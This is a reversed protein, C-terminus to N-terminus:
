KEECPLPIPKESSKIAKIGKILHGNALEAMAYATNMGVRGGGSQILSRPSNSPILDLMFRASKYRASKEPGEPMKQIKKLSGGLAGMLGKKMLRGLFSQGCESLPTEITFPTVSPEKPIARGLTEVFVEDSVSLTRISRYAQTVVLSNPVEIEPQGTVSITGQLRIDRSSAGVLIPYSGNELVWGQCKDNWYTLQSKSFNLTVAKSEGAALRVKQFAKLEKAAKFTKSSGNRGVYLQVTEAGDCIGDNRVSLTVTVTDGNESIALDSYAFSTYSLGYGFPYRIKEPVEDFFRYGVYINERYQEIMKSGFRDGFPIDNESRMWTESLKGSPCAEGFLLRRAAEGGGQGPLFIHLVASADEAFEMDIASGGALILVIKKGTAILKKVLSIQNEPIKFSKRDYGESESLDTLGCYVLVTDYQEAATLVEQELAPDPESEIERYGRVYRYKVGAKDFADKHTTLYKPSLGSSGAGQYRMETFLNGVALYEGTKELPLTGDNELLVACETAIQIATEAHKQLLEEIQPKEGKSQHRDILRLVNSVAKDLTELPLSGDAVADLIAKRNEWIGGPMDLDLGAKVGAVRDRTAGWDTMVLGDFGWDERLVDTLLWKNESCHTGNVKNYACMVTHPKGEKVAIEFAKLYVERAAREDVVSDSMYRYHESNNLAFHKVCASTGAEQVGQVYAASAKGALVPDESFYEFNRGGRPDRKINMGPALLVDVGYARCEEGIAKGVTKAAEPNWSNALNVPLPFATSPKSNGLGLAGEGEADAKCRVGAPGDTLYIAPIGLRPIANTMWSQYGEVLAAKEQVTLEKIIKEIDM